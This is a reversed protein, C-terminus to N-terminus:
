QKKKFQEFWEFFLNPLVQINRHMEFYNRYNHIIKLVEEESYLKKDQEAQWKAGEIFATKTSFLGCTYVRDAVEELTEKKPESLINIFLDFNGKIFDKSPEEKPEEIFHGESGCPTDCNVCRYFKDAEGCFILKSEKIQGGCACGYKSIFQKCNECKQKTEEKKM